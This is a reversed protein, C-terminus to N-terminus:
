SMDVPEISLTCTNQGFFSDTEAIKGVPGWATGDLRGGIWTTLGFIPDPPISKLRVQFGVPLALVSAAMASPLAVYGQLEYRRCPDPPIGNVFHFAAVLTPTMDITAPATYIGGDDGVLLAGGENLIRGCVGVVISGSPVVPDPPICRSPDGPYIPDPPIFTLQLHGWGLNAFGPVTRLQVNALGSAAITAAPALDPGPTVARSPDCAPLALLVAPILTSRTLGPLAYRM